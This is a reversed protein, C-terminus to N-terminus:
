QERLLPFLHVRLNLMGGIMYCITASYDPCIQARIAEANGEDDVLLDVSLNCKLFDLEPADVVGVAAGAEDEFGFDGPRSCGPM